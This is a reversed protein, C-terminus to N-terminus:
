KIQPDYADAFKLVRDGYWGFSAWNGGALYISAAKHEASRDHDTVGSVKSLKLGMATLADRLNWPDPPNHGTVKAVQDQYGMWTSPMFQAPGMAGGWGSCNGSANRYCPKRSVPKDNPNYGLDDCINKFREWQAPNMDNKYNGGGVNSGMNSEVKLVGLLFAARVGTLQSVVKAEELAQGFDIKAGCSQLATIEASLRSAVTSGQDILDQIRTQEDKTDALLDERDKKDKDLEVKQEEQMAYLSMQENRTEEIDAKESLLGSKETNLESLLEQLRQEFAVINEAERFFDSLSSKELIVEVFSKKDLLDLKRMYEELFTKRKDIDDEKLIIEHEKDNLLKDVDALDKETKQIAAEYSRIEKDLNSLMSQITETKQDLIDTSKQYTNIKDQVLNLQKQKQELEKQRKATDASSTNSNANTNANSNANSNTNSNKNNNSANVNSSTETKASSFQFLNLFLLVM